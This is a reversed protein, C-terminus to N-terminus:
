KGRGGWAAVGGFQAGYVVCECVCVTGGSSCLGLSAIAMAVAQERWSMRACVRGRKAEGLLWAGMAAGERVKEEDRVAKSWCFKWLFSDNRERNFEASFFVFILHSGIGMARPMPKRPANWSYRMCRLSFCVSAPAPAFLSRGPSTETSGCSRGLFRSLIRGLPGHDTSAGGICQSCASSRM